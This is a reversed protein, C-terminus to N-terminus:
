EETDDDEDEEDGYLNRCEEEAEEQTDALVWDTCDMYGPASYRAGWKKVLEVSTVKDPPNEIYDRLDDVLHVWDAFNAETAPHGVILGECEGAVDVPVIDTGNPGDVLYWKGFESQLEMFAM